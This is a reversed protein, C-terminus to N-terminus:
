LLLLRLSDFRRNLEPSDLTIETGDSFALRIQLLQRSHLLATFDDKGLESTYRVVVSSSGKLSRFILARNMTEYAAEGSVFQVSVTDAAAVASKPVTVSYNVVPNGTLSRDVTPVTMDLSVGSVACRRCAVSFPRAFLLQSGDPGPTTYLPDVTACAATLFSFVVACIFIAASGAGYKVPKNGM